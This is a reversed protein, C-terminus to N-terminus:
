FRLVSYQALWFACDNNNFRVEPLLNLSSHPGIGLTIAVRGFIPPARQEFAAFYPQRGISSHRATVSCLHTSIRQSAWAVRDIEAALSDFNVMNHPCMSSINSSLLNKRYEIRAQIAFIYSSLTTCHHGSPSKKRWKQTRYKWRAAHLVNWVPM